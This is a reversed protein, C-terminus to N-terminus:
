WDQNEKQHIEIHHYFKHQYDNTGVGTPFEPNGISPADSIGPAQEQVYRPGVVVVVVVLVVVVEVVDVVDVVVVV